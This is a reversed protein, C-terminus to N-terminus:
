HLKVESAYAVQKFLHVLVLSMIKCPKRIYTVVNTSQLAQSFSLM